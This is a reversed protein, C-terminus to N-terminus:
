FVKVQVADASVWGSEFKTEGSLAGKVEVLARGPVESVNLFFGQDVMELRGDRFISELGSEDQTRYQIVFGPSRRWQLINRRLEDTEADLRLRRINRHELARVLEVVCALRNNQNLRIYQRNGLIGEPVLCGDEKVPIIPKIKAAAYVMEDRVWIHSTFEAQCSDERITFFGIVADSQEIRLKIQPQLIEGHIDKGDVVAFGMGRLIPFVQDEIWRDRDNYGFGVFVKM